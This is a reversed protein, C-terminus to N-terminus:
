ESVSIKGNLSPNLHDHFPCDLPENFTHSYTEGLKVGGHADFGPCVDHTPHVASAPWMITTGKNVFQVTDGNKIDLTQPTFGMARMEIVYTKPAPEKKSEGEGSVVESQEDEPMMESSDNSNDVAPIKNQNENINELAPTKSQSKIIYLGGATLIIITLFIIVFKADKM